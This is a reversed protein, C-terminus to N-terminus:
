QPNFLIYYNQLLQITWIVVFMLVYYLHKKFCMARVEKSVGPRNLRAYAFVVSYFAIVLYSALTFCLIINGFGYIMTGSEAVTDLNLTSNPGLVAYEFLCSNCSGHRGSKQSVRFNGLVIVIVTIIMGFGSFMYYFKSRNSAPTFPSWM